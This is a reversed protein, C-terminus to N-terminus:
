GTWLAHVPIPLIVGIAEMESLNGGDCESEFGSFSLKLESAAFLVASPPSDVGVDV